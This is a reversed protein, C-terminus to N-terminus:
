RIEYQPIDTLKIGFKLASYPLIVGSGTEGYGMAFPIIVEVTDGVHMDLMAIQWGKVVSSLAFTRVTDAGSVATSDFTVGTYLTGKYKVEVTSTIYPSLNGATVSRDNFYHILVGSNKLWSPNLETYYPTGDPNTREMQENYWAANAERWERYDAWNDDSSCGTVAMTATIGILATHLLRKM